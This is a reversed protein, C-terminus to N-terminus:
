AGEGVAIEQGAAGVCGQRVANAKFDNGHLFAEILKGVGVFFGEFVPQGVELIIFHIDGGQKEM